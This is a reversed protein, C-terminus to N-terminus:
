NSHRLSLQFVNVSGGGSNWVRIELQTQNSQFGNLFVVHFAGSGGYAAPPPYIKSVTFTATVSHERLDPVLQQRSILENGSANWVEFNIPASNSLIVTAKYTGKPETWYDGDIVYGRSNSSKVYWASSSGSTVDSDQPTSVVWASVSAHLKLRIDKISHPPKVQFAFVGDRHVELKAYPLMALASIIQNARYDSYEIGARPTFVYWIVKEHVPINGITAYVYRRFSFNSIIGQSAVVEADAPIRSLVSSLIAAQQKSVSVWTQKVHPIFEVAWASTNLTVLIVVLIPLVSQKWKLLVHVFLVIFGVSSFTYLPVSQFSPGAYRNSSALNNVLLVSLPVGLTWVTAIGILGSPALNGYIDTLHRFYVGSVRLPHFIVAKIIKILDTEKPVRAGSPVTLYGFLGRIGSGRDLGIISLGELTGIGVFFLLTATRWMKRRFETDVLGAIFASLSLGVIWTSAIAGLSVTLAIWIWARRFRKQSFDFAAAIIFPAAFLEGHVDNAIAWWTWPNVALIFLGLFGVLYPVWEREFEQFKENIVTLMWRYAIFEAAVVALVAALLFYLGTPPIWYLPAFLWIFISGHDTLLHRGQWATSIPNLIGRSILYLGQQYQNEDLTGSFRQYMFIKFGALATFQAGFM